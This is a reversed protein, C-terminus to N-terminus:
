LDNQQQYTTVTEYHLTHISLTTMEKSHSICKDDKSCRSNGLCCDMLQIAMECIDSHDAPRALCPLYPNTEPEYRDSDCIMGHLRDCTDDNSAIAAIDWLCSM